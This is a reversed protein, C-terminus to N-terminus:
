DHIFDAQRENLWELVSHLQKLRLDLSMRNYVQHDPLESRMKELRLIHSETESRQQEFAQLIETPFYREIFYLRTIFEMRIARTSAGSPAELWRLFRERGQPTMHLLQRPPLKEQPQEEASIDGRLVLRHLIAYAQSQSLHWVKGLDTIVRRHLEYGYGPDLYLL